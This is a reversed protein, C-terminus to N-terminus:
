KIVNNDQNFTPKIAQPVGPVVRPPFLVIIPKFYVNTYLPFRNEQKETQQKEDQYSYFNNKQESRM